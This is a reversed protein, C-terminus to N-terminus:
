LVSLKASDHETAPMRSTFLGGWFPALSAGPKACNMGRGLICQWYEVGEQQAVRVVEIAGHGYGDAVVAM